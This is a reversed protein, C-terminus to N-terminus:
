VTSSSRKMRGASTSRNTPSGDFAHRASPQCASTLKSSSMPMITSASRLFSRSLGLRTMHHGRRRQDVRMAMEIEVAVFIIARCHQMARIFCADPTDDNRRDVPIAAMLNQMECFGTFACEGSDADMGVATEFEVFGDRLFHTFHRVVLRHHRNTFDAEVVM